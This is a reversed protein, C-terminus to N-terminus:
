EAALWALRFPPPPPPPPIPCDAPLCPRCVPNCVLAPTLVILWEGPAVQFTGSGSTEAMEVGVQGSAARYVLAARGAGVALRVGDSGQEWEFGEVAKGGEGGCGAALVALGAVVRLWPKM